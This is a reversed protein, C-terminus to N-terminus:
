TRTVNACLVIFIYKENIYLCFITYIEYIIIDCIAIIFIADYKVILIDVDEFRHQFNGCSEKNSGTIVDSMM